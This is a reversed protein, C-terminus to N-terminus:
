AFFLLLQLQLHMYELLSLCCRQLCQLLLKKGCPGRRFFAWVISSYWKVLVVLHYLEKLLLLLQLLLEGLFELSRSLSTSKLVLETLHSRRGELTELGAWFSLFGSLLVFILENRATIRSFYFRRVRNAWFDGGVSNCRVKPRWSSCFRCILTQNFTAFVGPCLLKLDFKTVIVEIDCRRWGIWWWLHWWLDTRSAWRLLSMKYSRSDPPKVWKEDRHALSSALIGWSRGRQQHELRSPM